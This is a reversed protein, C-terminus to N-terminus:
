YFLFFGTHIVRIWQNIYSFKPFLQLYMALVVNVVHFILTQQIKSPSHHCRRKSIFNLLDGKGCPSGAIHNWHCHLFPFACQTFLTWISLKKQDKHEQIRVSYQFKRLFDGCETRICSFFSSFFSRIQISKVCHTFELVVRFMICSLYILLVKKLLKWSFLIITWIYHFLENM